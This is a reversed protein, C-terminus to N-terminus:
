KNLGKFKEKNEIEKMQEIHYANYFDDLCDKLMISIFLSLIFPSALIIMIILMSM